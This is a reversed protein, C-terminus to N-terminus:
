YIKIEKVVGNDGKLELVRNEAPLTGGTIVVSPSVQYVAEQVTTNNTQKISISAVKGDTGLLISSYVGYVTFANSPAAVPTVVEIFLAVNNYTRIKVTDGAAVSDLGTRIGNRFIFAAPDVAVSTIKGKQDVLLTNGSPQAVIKGTVLTQDQGTGPLQEGTRDLLAALEARTVPRNPRFSNDEYGNILGKELAVAVYGVAGAPIQDADKFPLKDNMRAKAETGLKMAKVLLTTAWLRDAPQNPLVKDDNELFLDNEAAVAVYGVAWPYQNKIQNADKFNLNSAMEEPSEAKDRLDMLRVAATLAEIRTIVKRPQFTGDEYGEFVRKTALSAIYKSAWEVDAGNLDPFSLRIQINVNGKKDTYVGNWDKGYSTNKGHNGNNGKNDNGKGKPDAM